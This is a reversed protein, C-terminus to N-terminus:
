RSQTCQHFVAFSVFIQSPVLEPSHGWCPSRTRGHTGWVATESPEADGQALAADKERRAVFM